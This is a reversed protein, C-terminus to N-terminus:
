GTRGSGRPVGRGAQALKRAAEALERDDGLTLATVACLLPEDQTGGHDCLRPHVYARGRGPRPCPGQRHWATEAHDSSQGPGELLAPGPHGARARRYDASRARWNTQHKWSSRIVNVAQVLDIAAALLEAIAADRANRAARRNRLLGNVTRGAFTLAVAGLTFGGHDACRGSRDRALCPAPQCATLPHKVDAVQRSPAAGEARHSATLRVQAAGQRRRGPRPGRYIAVLVLATSMAAAPDEGKGPPFGGPVRM